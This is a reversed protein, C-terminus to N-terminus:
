AEGALAQMRIEERRIVAARVQALDHDSAGLAFTENLFDVLDGRYDHAYARFGRDRGAAIMDVLNQYYTTGPMWRMGAPLGRPSAGPPTTAREVARAPDLWAPRAVFLRLGFTTVADNDHSLMVFRM